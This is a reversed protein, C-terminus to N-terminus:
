TNPPMELGLHKCFLGKVHKLTDIMNEHLILSARMISIENSFYDRLTLKGHQPQRILAWNINNIGVTALPRMNPSAFGDLNNADSKVHSM